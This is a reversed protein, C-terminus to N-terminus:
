EDEDEISLYSWSVDLNELMSEYIDHKNTGIFIASTEGVANFSLSIVDNFDNTYCKQTTLSIDAQYQWNKQIYQTTEASFHDLSNANYKLGGMTGNYIAMLTLFGSCTDIEYHWELHGDEYAYGGYIPPDDQTLDERKIGWIVVNQNEEFFVLYEHDIFEVDNAFLLRNHSQNINQEQGLTIYYRKLVEPLQISLRNQMEQIMELGFGHNENSNLQYLQSIKELYNM